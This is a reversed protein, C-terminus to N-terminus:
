VSYKRFYISNGRGKVLTIMFGKEDFRLARSDKSGPHAEVRLAVEITKVPNGKTDCLKKNVWKLNKRLRGKKTTMNRKELEEPIESLMLARNITRIFQGKSHGDIKKTFDIFEGFEPPLQDDPISALEKLTVFEDGLKERDKRAQSVLFKRTFQDKSIWHSFWMRYRTWYSGKNDQTYFKINLSRLAGTERDLDGLGVEVGRVEGYFISGAATKNFDIYTRNVTTSM